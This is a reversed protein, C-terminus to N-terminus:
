CIDNNGACHNTKVLIDQIRSEPLAHKRVFNNHLMVKTRISQICYKNKKKTFNPFQNKRTCELVEAYALQLVVTKSTINKIINKFKEYDWEITLSYKM